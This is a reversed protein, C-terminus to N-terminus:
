DNNCRYTLALDLRYPATPRASFPMLMDLELEHVPCAGDPRILNSLQVHFTAFDQRLTDPKVNWTKRVVQLVEQESKGDLVLKAMLAATPNLHMIRNANVILTGSGDPDIRLHIRAKEDPNEILYHYLGSKLNKIESKQSFWGSFISM